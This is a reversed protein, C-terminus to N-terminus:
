NDLAPKPRRKVFFSALYIPVGLIISLVGPWDGYQVFFTIRRGPTMNAEIAGRKWWGLTQRIRGNADIEASIGTNASRIMPRRTEICRLAGFQLHQVHGPTNGWWGDNTIVGLVTAGKRVYEAVHEGYVSEYCIIPALKEGSVSEFVEREKQSGLPQAIGGLDFFQETADGIIDPYPLTEVGLVLQSKHYVEKLEGGQIMLASNYFDMWMDNYHAATPTPRKATNPYKERYSAGLVFTADRQKSLALIDPIQWNSNFDEQEVNGPISTEPWLIFDTGEPAKETLAIMTDLQRDYTAPDFKEGYPDYNPQVAWVKLSKYGFPRSAIFGPFNVFPSIVSPILTFLIAAVVRTKKPSLLLATWLINTGLIWITGGLVGTYEYWQALFNMSALGNGLTMWPFSLAWRFHWWEFATWLTLLAFGGMALGFRKWVRIAAIVVVSFFLTNCVIALVAGLVSALGVWWLSALNWVGFTLICLQWTARNHYKAKNEYILALLFPVWAILLLPATPLPPWGVSLLVGSLLAAWRRSSPKELM